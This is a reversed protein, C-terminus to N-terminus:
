RGLDRAATADTLVALHDPRHPQPDLDMVDSYRRFVVPEAARRALWTVSSRGGLRREVTVGLTQAVAALGSVAAPDDVDM